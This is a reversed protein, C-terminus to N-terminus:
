QVLQRILLNKRKVRFSGLRKRYRITIIVTLAITLGRFVNAWVDGLATDSVVFIYWSLNMLIHLWIPVWLSEWEIYLWAFWAAGMLTIAFIGVSAGFDSSQYLHFSAFLLSSILVSPIFGWKVYRFLIGFLFGRYLIEEMLGPYIAKSFISTLEINENLDATIYSGVFMPLTTFLVFVIAQLFRNTLGLTKLSSLLNGRTAIALFVAIPLLWAVVYYITLRALYFLEAISEIDKIINYLWSSKALFFIAIVFFSCLLKNNINSPFLM